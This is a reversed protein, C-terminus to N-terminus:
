NRNRAARRKAAVALLKSQLLVSGFTCLWGRIRALTGEKEQHEEVTDYFIEEEAAEALSLKGENRHDYWMKLEALYRDKKKEAQEQETEGHRALNREKWVGHVVLTRMKLTLRRILTRGSNKATIETGQLKLREEHVTAWKNSWRGCFVQEWGIAEQSETLSHLWEVHREFEANTEAFYCEFGELMLRKLEECVGTKECTSRVERHM